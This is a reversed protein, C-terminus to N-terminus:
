NLIKKNLKLTSPRKRSFLYFTSRALGLARCAHAATSLGEEVLYKIARRRRAPSVMKKREGRQPDPDSSRGRVAEPSRMLRRPRALAPSGGGGDRGVQEEMPLLHGSQSQASRLDNQGARV